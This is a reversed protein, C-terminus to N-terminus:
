KVYKGTVETCVSTYFFLINMIHTDVRVDYLSNAGVSAMAAKYAADYGANGTNVLYLINSACAEGHAVMGPKNDAETLSEFTHGYTVDGYIAATTYPAGAFYVCGSTGLGFVALAAVILSKM